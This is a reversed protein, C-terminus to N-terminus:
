EHEAEAADRWMRYKTNYNIIYDVKEETFRYHTALVRDIEDIIPKFTDGRFSQIAVDGVSPAASALCLRRLKATWIYM